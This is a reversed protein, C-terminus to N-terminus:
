GMNKEYILRLGELTLNPNIIDIVDSNSKVMHAMGGTAIVKADPCNMEKKMESVIKEVSGIYGILIGSQINTITTELDNPEVIVDDDNEDTGNITFLRAFFEKSVYHDDVWQSSVGGGGGAGSGGGRRVNSVNVRDVMDNIKKRSLQIM